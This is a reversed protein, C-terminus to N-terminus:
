STAEITEYDTHLISLCYTIVDGDAHGNRKFKRVGDNFCAKLAEIGYDQYPKMLRKSISKTYDTPLQERKIIDHLKAIFEAYEQPLEAAKKGNKYCVNKNTHVSESKQQANQQASQQADVQYKEWKIISIVTTIRSIRNHIMGCNELESIFKKTTRRNWKWRESLSVQSYCLEGPKLKIEIGRIFISRERHTALLLLDIWAQTKTFRESFYFENEMIQRHLKIWGTQM